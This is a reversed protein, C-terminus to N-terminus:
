FVLDSIRLSYYLSQLEFEISLKAILAGPTPPPVRLWVCRSHLSVPMHLLITCPSRTLTSARIDIKGWSVVCQVACHVSQGGGGEEEMRGVSTVRKGRKPCAGPELILTFCWNKICPYSYCLNISFSVKTQKIIDLFLAIRLLPKYQIHSLCM